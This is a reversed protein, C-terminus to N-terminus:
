LKGMLLMPVNVTSSLVVVQGNSSVCVQVPTITGLNTKFNANMYKTALAPLYDSTTSDCTNAAASLSTSAAGVALGADDLAVSLQDRAILIRGVDIVIGSMLIIGIAAAAVIISVSGRRDGSFRSVLALLAFTRRKTTM